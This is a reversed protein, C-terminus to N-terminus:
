HLKFCWRYSGDSSTEPQGIRGYVVTACHTGPSPRTTAAPSPSPPHRQQPRPRDPPRGAASRCRRHAPLRLLRSCPRCRHHDAAPRPRRRSSRRERRGGAATRATGGQAVLLRLHVRGRGRGRDPVHRDSAEDRSGPEHTSGALEDERSGRLMGRIVLAPVTAKFGHTRRTHGVVDTADETVPVPQEGGDSAATGAMDEHSVVHAQPAPHRDLHQVGGEGVVLGEETPEPGLGPGRGGEVVGVDHGDVVPALLLAPGIEDALVQTAAAQARHEVPAPPQARGLGQEDPQLRGPPEVVGVAPAEDVAVDLGGVKEEVLFASQPDAVEPQGPGQGLRGPGLGDAGDEAGGAVGGGLLDAPRRDVALGVHVGQGQHQDLGDGAPHRERGVGGDGGEHAAEVAGDLRRGLQTRQGRHHGPGSTGIGGLAEVGGAQAAGQLREGEAQGLGLGEGEGAGGDDVLHAGEGIGGVDAEAGAPRGGCGCGCGRGGAAVGVGPAVGM